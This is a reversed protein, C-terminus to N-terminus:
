LKRKIEVKYFAAVVEAIELAENTDITRFLTKNDNTESFVNICIREDKLTTSVVKKPYRNGILHRVKTRVVVIYAITPYSEWVGIKLGFISFIIRFQKTDFRIEIGETTALYLGAFFSFFSLVFTLATISILLLVASFILFLAGTTQKVFSIKKLYLYTNM